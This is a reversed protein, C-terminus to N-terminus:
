EHDGEIRLIKIRSVLDWDVQNSETMPNEYHNAKVILRHSADLDIIKLQGTSDPRPRGAPLDKIITASVLDALRHRLAQALDAGLEVDAKEEDECITRLNKTEFALELAGIESGQPV